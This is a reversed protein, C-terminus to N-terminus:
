LYSLTNPSLSLKQENQMFFMPRSGEDSGDRRSPESSPTVVYPKSSFYSFMIMLYERKDLARNIGVFNDARGTLRHTHTKFHVSFFKKYEM